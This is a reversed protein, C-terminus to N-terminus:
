LINKYNPGLKIVMAVAMQVHHKHVAPSISYLSLMSMTFIFILFIFTIDPNTAYHAQKGPLNQQHWNISSPLLPVDTHVVQMFNNGSLLMDPFQGFEHGNARPDL